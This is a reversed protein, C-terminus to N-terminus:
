GGGWWDRKMMYNRRYESHKWFDSTPSYKFSAVMIGYEQTDMIHVVHLHIPADSSGMDKRHKRVKRLFVDGLGGYKNIVDIHTTHFCVYEPEEPWDPKYHQLVIWRDRPWEFHTAPVIENDVLVSYDEESWWKESLTDIIM